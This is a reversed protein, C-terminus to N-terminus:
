QRHIADRGPGNYKVLVDQKKSDIFYMALHDDREEHSRLSETTSHKVPFQSAAPKLRVQTVANHGQALCM